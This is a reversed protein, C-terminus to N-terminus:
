KHLVGEQEMDKGHELICFKLEELEGADLKRYKERKKQDFPIGKGAEIGELYTTVDMNMPKINPFLTKKLYQFIRIGGLDMDGWHYYQIKDDAVELLHKLFIRAKPSPFGHIFIYLIEPDYVMDEYNAQNEITIIKKVGTLSVPTSHVLTQANMLNGYIMSSSDIKNGEMSYVLNGKWALTQSYTLIGYEALIEYEEMGDPIDNYKKLVTLVRSEYKKEFAKSDHFVEESFFRKWTYDELKALKYLCYLFLEDDANQVLIGHELKQLMDSYYKILWEKDTDEKWKTISDIQAHIIKRPNTRHELEYLKDLSAMPFDIKKIDKHFPTWDPKLLGLHELKEAQKILNQKGIKEIVLQDIKPHKIGDNCGARWESASKTKCEAYQEILYQSLTKSM